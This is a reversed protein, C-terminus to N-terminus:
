YTSASRKDCLASVLLTMLGPQVSSSIRISKGKHGSNGRAAALAGSQSKSLCISTWGCCRSGRDFTSLLCDTNKGPSQLRIHLQKNKKLNVDLILIILILYQTGGNMKYFFIKSLVVTRKLSILAATQWSVSVCCSRFCPCLPHNWM